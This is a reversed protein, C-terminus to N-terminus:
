VSSFIEETADPSWGLAILRQIDAAEHSQIPLSPPHPEECWKTGLAEVLDAVSRLQGSGVQVDGVLRHRVVLSIARGVDSAHIFDHNNNPTRLCLATGSTSASLAEDVLAPRRLEPDFVYFPRIWTLAGAEIRPSLAHRLRTKATSYADRGGSAKVVATGTGIFWAGLARCARELELSAEVWAENEPSDRYGDTGSAVWALHLVAVPRLRSVVDSPVGPKLLDDVHRDIIGPELGPVDWNAAVHRGILGSAGTILVTAAM